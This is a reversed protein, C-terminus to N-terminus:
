RLVTIKRKSASIYYIKVRSLKKPLAKKIKEPWEILILNEPNKLIEKLGVGELDKENELRYCDIHYFNNFSCKVNSVQRGAQRGHRDAPLGTSMAPLNSCKVAHKHLNYEKLIIFTPSTVDNEDIGLGKAFGQAFTTKGAGLVGELALVFATKGQYPKELIDKAFKEAFEKTEKENKTFIISM